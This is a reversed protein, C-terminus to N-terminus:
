SVKHIAAGSSSDINGLTPNGSYYLQAGGSLTADLRGTVKITGQAGGSFDVQANEVTFHLLDMGAGGSGTAVLNVARGSLTLHSGGSMDINFNHSSSFGTASAIVGGSFQVSELDPMTIRARLVTTTVSVPKLEVHLTSGAKYVQLSSIVNDDATVEVSYTSGQTIVINFGNSASVATFDTINYNKTQSHGSGIIPNIGIPLFGGVILAVIIIAVAALAVVLSVGVYGPSGSRSRVPQQTSYHAVPTGCKPCFAMNETLKNGCKSCYSM